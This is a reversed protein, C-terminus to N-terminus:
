IDTARMLYHVNCFHDDLLPSWKSCGNCTHWCHLQCCLLLGKGISVPPGWFNVREELCLVRPECCADGKSSISSVCTALVHRREYLYLLCVYMVLTEKWRSLPSSRQCCADGKKSISSVCTELVHRREYLYLLCVYMVLTEKWRSLPSSRQCCADGKKSISSVCTCLVRWREDLYLLRTHFFTDGKMPVSSVCTWLVCRQHQTWTVLETNTCMVMTGLPVLSVTM